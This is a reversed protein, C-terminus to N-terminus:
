ILQMKQFNSLLYISKSQCFVLLKRLAIITDTWTARKAQDEDLGSMLCDRLTKPVSLPIIPNTREMLSDLNGIKPVFEGSLVEYALMCFSFYDTAKNNGQKVAAKDM